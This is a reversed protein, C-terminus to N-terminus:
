DWRGRGCGWTLIGWGTSPLAQAFTKAIKAVQAAARPAGGGGVSLLTELSAGARKGAELLDGTMAAPAVFSSIRENEILKVAADPDWRYM